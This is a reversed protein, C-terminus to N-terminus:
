GAAALPITENQPACRPAGDFSDQLPRVVIKGAAIARDFLADVTQQNVFFKSGCGHYL